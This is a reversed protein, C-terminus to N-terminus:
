AERRITDSHTVSNDSLHCIRANRSLTEPPVFRMNTYNWRRGAKNSRLCLPPQLGITRQNKTYLSTHPVRINAHKDSTMRLVLLDRILPGIIRPKENLRARYSLTEMSFSLLSSANATGETLVPRIKKLGPTEGFTTKSVCDREGTVTNAKLVPAM